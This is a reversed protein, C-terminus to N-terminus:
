ALGEQHQLLAATHDMGLGTRNKVWVVDFTESTTDDRVQDTHRLDIPDCTLRLDTISQSGGAVQERGTASGIHARVGTYAEAAAPPEDYPDRTPDDAVRLVTITTTALPIAM